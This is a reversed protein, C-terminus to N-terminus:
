TTIFHKKDNNKKKKRKMSLIDNKSNWIEQITFLNFREAEQPIYQKQLPAVPTCRIIYPFGYYTCYIISM